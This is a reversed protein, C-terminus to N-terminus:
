QNSLYSSLMDEFEEIDELSLNYSCISEVEKSFNNINKLEKNLTEVNISNFYYEYKLIRENDLGEFLNKDKSDCYKYAIQSEINNVKSIASESYFFLISVLLISILILEFSSRIKLFLNYVKYVM